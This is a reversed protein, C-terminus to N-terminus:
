QSPCNDSTLQQTAHVMVGRVRASARLESDEKNQVCQVFCWALARVDLTIHARATLAISDDSLQYSREDEELLFPICLLGAVIKNIEDCRADRM